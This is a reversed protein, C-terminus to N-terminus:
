FDGPIASKRKIEITNKHHIPATDLLTQWRNRRDTRTNEEPPRSGSDAGLLEGTPAGSAAPEPQAVRKRRKGM